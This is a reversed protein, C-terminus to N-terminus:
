EEGVKGLDVGKREQQILTGKTGGGVGIQAAWISTFVHVKM